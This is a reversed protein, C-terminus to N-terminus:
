KSALKKQQSHSYYCKNNKFWSCSDGNRCPVYKKKGHCSNEHKKLAARTVIDGQCHKCINLPIIEDCNNAHSTVDAESKFVAKCKVCDVNNNHESEIHKEVNMGNRFAKNCATCCHEAKKHVINMHSKLDDQNRAAYDCKQCTTEPNPDEQNSIQEVSAQSSLKIELTSVKEQSEALANQYDKLEKRLQSLTTSM